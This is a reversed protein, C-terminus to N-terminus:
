QEMGIDLIAPLSTGKNKMVFYIAVVRNDQNTILASASKTRKPADKEIIEKQFQKHKGKIQSWRQIGYIGM